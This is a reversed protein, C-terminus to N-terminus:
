DEGNLLAVIEPLTGLVMVKSQQSDEGYENGIWVLVTPRQHKQSVGGDEIHTVWEPNIAFSGFIGQVMVFRAM